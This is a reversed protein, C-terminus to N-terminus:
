EFRHMGLYRAPFKHEHPKFQSNELLRSCIEFDLEDNFTPEILDCAIAKGDQGIDLNYEAVIQRDSLPLENLSKEVASNDLTGMATPKPPPIFGYNWQPLQNDLMTYYVIVHTDYSIRKGTKSLAPYFRATAILHPCTFADLEDSGSGHGAKCATILGDESITVAAPSVGSEDRTAAKEPYQGSEISSKALDLQPLRIIEPDLDAWSSAKHVSVKITPHRVLGDKGVWSSGFDFTRPKAAAYTPAIICIAAMAGNCILLKAVNMLGDGGVSGLM